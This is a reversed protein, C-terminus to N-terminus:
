AAARAAETLIVMQQTGSPTYVSYVGRYEAPMQQTGFSTRVSRVVRASPTM